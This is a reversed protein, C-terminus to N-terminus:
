EGGVTYGRKHRDLECEAWRTFSEFRVWARETFQTSRGLIGPGQAEVAEAVKLFGRLLDPTLAV